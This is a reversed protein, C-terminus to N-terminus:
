RDSKRRLHSPLIGEMSRYKAVTRRAVKYGSALLKKALQSDTQPDSEMEILKRLTTRIPLSRDFFKDMPIIRGNPLQVSKDSVARSVTSEHVGLDKALAARTQPKLHEDGYLIFDRQRKSLQFMLRHMTNNRQQLCKILLSAKELDKKWQEIKEKPANRISDKFLPNVILSGYIPMVIEVVLPNNNQNNLLKIIVDPQYYRNSQDKSGQRITGWHTRAPYPNLNDCIFRAIEQIQYRTTGLNKALQSYQHRSLFGKGERIVRETLPHVQQHESLSELQILLAEEPSSSAVGVPESTQILKLVSNVREQSTHFFRCIEGPDVTLLGDDDLSSLIHAAIPRDETKLEPAIQKFVYTPLDEIAPTYNDLPIHEERSSNGNKPYFDERPSIFVIPLDPDPQSPRTCVPCSGSNLLTRRCSPCQREEILELAPNTSLELNIKQRLETTTMALLTMTQALHATTIPRLDQHQILM